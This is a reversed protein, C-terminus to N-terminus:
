GFVYKPFFIASIDFSPKTSCQYASAWGQSAAFASGDGDGDGFGPLGTIAMRRGGQVPEGAALVCIAAGDGVGAGWPFFAGAAAAVLGGWVGAGADSGDGLVGGAFADGFADFAVGEGFGLPM